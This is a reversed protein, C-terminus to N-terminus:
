ACRAADVFVTNVISGGRAVYGKTQMLRGIDQNLGARGVITEACIAAPRYSDFDLTQLIALDLGEVDISMVDPAKGLHRAIVHNVSILPMKVVREVIEKKANRRHMAVQDASFTNWMPRGRIVYYDAERQDTVGIGVNLVTDGPRVARLQEAYYPNPEVLVGRSGTSYFLFTNNGRVPEAAGIDLYTPKDIGAVRHIFDYLVLDEGQQAYSVRGLSRVDPALRAWAVSGAAAASAPGAIGTITGALFSRRNTLTASM